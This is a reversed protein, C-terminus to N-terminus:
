CHLLELKLTQLLIMTVNGQRSHSRSLRGEESLLIEM